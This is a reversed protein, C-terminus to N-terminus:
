NPCSSYEAGPGGLVLTDNGNNSGPIAPIGIANYGEVDLQGPNSRIIEAEGKLENRDVPVGNRDVQVCVLEGIFPDESVGPILSPNNPPSNGQLPLCPLGSTDMPDCPADGRSALWAI